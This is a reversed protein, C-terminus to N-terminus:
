AAKEEPVVTKLQALYDQIEEIREKTAAGLDISEIMFGDQHRQRLLLHNSRTIVFECQNGLTIVVM